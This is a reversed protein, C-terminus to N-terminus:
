SVSGDVPPPFGFRPRIYCITVLRACMTGGAGLGCAIVVSIFVARCVKVKTDSEKGEITAERARASAGDREKACTGLAEAARSCKAMETSNM